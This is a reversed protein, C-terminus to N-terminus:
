DSLISMLIQSMLIKQANSAKVHLWIRTDSEEASCTYAPEPQPKNNETVYWATDEIEGQFGGAVILMGNTSLYHSLFYQTLFYVLSRKCVRCNIVNERWKSPIPDQGAFTDCTHGNQPHTSAQLLTVHIVM